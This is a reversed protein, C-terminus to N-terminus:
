KMKRFYIWAFFPAGIIATVAGVPLESPSLITRAVVDSLVMLCGGTIVCMPILVKHRSGFFRRVVHPAILDVFGITGCVAVASGTLVAACLFIIRKTRSTNVGMASATEEGFTLIDMERSLFLLVTLGLVFFPLLMRLYDWGRMSFSGMQWMTIQKVSHDDAMATIVTLIASFFLSLVMGALIVTMNSMNRDVKSSFGLVLLVTLLAACFGVFPLTFGALVPISVGFVIILGAGLSAGSSVGLTYPTALPNKLASQVVCGSAALSGGVFFAVLVRPLRLTWVISVSTAPIDSPLEMGFLKHLIIAGIDTPRIGSSGILVAATLVVLVVAATLTIKMWEPVQVKRM